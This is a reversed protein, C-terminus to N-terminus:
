LHNVVMKRQVRQNQTEMEVIYLGNKLASVDIEAVDDHLLVVKGMRDYIRIAKVAITNDHLISIKSDAPNPSIVFTRQFSLDAIGSANCANVIQSKTNCGQANGTLTIQADPLELFDCISKVECTSLSHNNAMLISYIYEAKIHDLGALSSLSDNFQMWIFGLVKLNQLATLNKLVKNDSLYIGQFITDLNYLGDLSTMAENEELILQGKIYTLGNLGELNELSTNRSVEVNGGVFKLAELGELNVLLDNGGYSFSTYIYLDGQISELSTLGSLNNLRSNGSITVDGAVTALGSLGEMNVLGTNIIDLDVGITTLKELGILNTLNSKYISLDGGITTLNELGSLSTLRAGYFNLDSGISHLNSLGTLNLTSDCEWIDLKGGISVIPSLGDVNVIDEGVIWVNGGIESCNPYNTSFNDIDQQNGFQIGNPLCAQTHAATQILVVLIYFIILKKM